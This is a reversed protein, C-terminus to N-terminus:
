LRRVLHKSKKCALLKMPLRSTPDPMPSRHKGNLLRVYRYHSEFDVQTQLWEHLTTNEVIGCVLLDTDVRASKRTSEIWRWDLPDNDNILKNEM